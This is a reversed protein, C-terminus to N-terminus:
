VRVRVRVKVSDAVRLPSVFSRNWNSGLPDAPPTEFPCLSTEFPCLSTGFPWLSTEGFNELMTGRRETLALSLTPTRKKEQELGVSGVGTFRFRVGVRSGQGKCKSRM